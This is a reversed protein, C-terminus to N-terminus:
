TLLLLSVLMAELEEDIKKPRPPKVPLGVFTRSGGGPNHDDQPPAGADGSAALTSPDLTVALTGTSGSEVDGSAALTSDALTVALTGTVTTTGSAALTSPDLTAALTGTVTTTGAAALTSPALTVALTGTVTTTGSAALTSAALTVALTGTAGGGGAFAATSVTATWGGLVRYVSNGILISPDGPEPSVDVTVTGTTSTGSSSTLPGFYFADGFSVYVEVLEDVAPFPSGTGATYGIVVETM